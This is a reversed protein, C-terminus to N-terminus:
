TDTPPPDDPVVTAGAAPAEAALSALLRRAGALSFGPLDAIAEPKAARVGELSGFAMLLTRRRAPGIGPLDLLRSTVTRATRRARNFTVAFRHAEDRAQQLLRLAPSRRSIRLSEARGPIFIEEDRKALSVLPLEALGLERLADAAASLQGKGGDIVVLDPLPKSEEVRRRFYRGVVERMSAFDDTGEVTKVKFKRYESRRPRGNDFWVCSGVTDTGQTTSIDFCVLSRPLRSLGLERQLEYVPSAAREEAESAALKFEELLHRANQQALDILERRPGRQPVKITVSGLSEEVLPREEFDLPVLLEPAWEADVTYAGALFATLIAGDTEGEVHELLRQDRAVLRGSRIRLVVVCADDGDRAMGIADQDGGEVRLVVTPEEMQELHRLADRLGAAREYDMASSAERMRTSVRRVVEDTRGELFLVVEEIM